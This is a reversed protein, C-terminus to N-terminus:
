AESPAAVTAQLTVSESKIKRWLSSRKRATDIAMWFYFAALVLLFPAVFKTALEAMPTLTTNFIANTWVGAALALIASATSFFGTAQTNLTALSDMETEQVPYCKMKRVMYESQVSAGTPATSEFSPENNAM